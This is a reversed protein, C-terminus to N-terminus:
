PQAGSTLSTRPQITSLIHKSSRAQSHSSIPISEKSDLNHLKAPLAFPFFLFDMGEFVDSNSGRDVREGVYRDVGEGDVVRGGECGAPM